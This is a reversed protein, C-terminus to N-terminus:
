KGGMDPPSPILASDGSSKHLVSNQQLPDLHNPSDLGGDFFKENRARGLDTAYGKGDRRESPRKAITVSTLRSATSTATDSVFPV